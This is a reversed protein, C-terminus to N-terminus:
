IRSVMRPRGAGYTIRVATLGFYRATSSCNAGTMRPIPMGASTVGQEIGLQGQWDNRSNCDINGPNNNRIRRSVAM